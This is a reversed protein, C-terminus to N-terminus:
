PPQWFSSFQSASCPQGKTQSHFTAPSALKGGTANNSIAGGIDGPVIRRQRVPTPAQRAPCWGGTMAPGARGDIRGPQLDTDGGALAPRETGDCALM